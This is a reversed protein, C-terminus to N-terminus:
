ALRGALVARFLLWRQALPHRVFRLGDAVPKVLALPLTAAMPSATLDGNKKARRTRAVLDALLSPNASAARAFRAGPTEQGEEPQPMAPLDTARALGFLAMAEAIVTGTEGAGLTSVLGEYFPRRALLASELSNDDGPELFGEMGDLMHDLSAREWGKAAIQERLASVVPHRRPTGVGFVEDLAERWWTLRIQGLLPNSVRGPISLLEAG